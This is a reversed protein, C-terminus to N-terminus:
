SAPAQARPRHQPAHFLGCDLLVSQGDPLTLRHCSGTVGRVAGNHIFRLM